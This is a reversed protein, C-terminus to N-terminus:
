ISIIRDISKVAFLEEYGEHLLQLSILCLIDGKYTITFVMLIGYYLQVVM